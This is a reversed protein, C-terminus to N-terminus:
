LPDLGAKKRIHDDDFLVLKMQSIVAWSCGISVITRALGDLDELDELDVEARSAGVRLRRGYMEILRGYEEIQRWQEDLRDQLFHREDETLPQSTRGAMHRAYRRLIHHGLHSFLSM